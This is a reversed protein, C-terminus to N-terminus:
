DDLKLGGMDGEVYQERARERRDECQMEWYPHPRQRLRHQEGHHGGLEHLEAALDHQEPPTHSTPPHEIWLVIRSNRKLWASIVCCSSASRMPTVRCVTLAM